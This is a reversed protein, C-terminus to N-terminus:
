IDNIGGKLMMGVPLKNVMQIKLKGSVSASTPGISRVSTNGYRARRIAAAIMSEEPDGFDKFIYDPVNRIDAGIGDWYDTDGRANVLKFSAAWLATKGMIDQKFFGVPKGFTGAHEAIMVVHMYPRLVNILLESASATIDTVLIYVTNLQLNNSRQFYVDDFAYGLTEPHSSLYTNVQYRFMLADEGAANILKNALYAAADVYGGTNYRLDLIMDGVSAQEFDHFRQDLNTKFASEGAIDEFSSLALYGIKKEPYIFVRDAVIPNIEYPQSFLDVDRVSGDNGQVKLHMGPADMADLLTNLVAQYQSDDEVQCNGTTCSVPISLDVGEGISVIIDSRKLGAQDAPSGGEVFYIVPYAVEETVAGISIYLGYGQGPNTGAEARLGSAEINELYSFRDIGGQYSPYYPTKGKLANLLDAASSYADIFAYDMNIDPNIMEGWLSYLSYYYYISDKLLDADSRSSQDPTVSIHKKCASFLGITGILLVLLIRYKAEQKIM